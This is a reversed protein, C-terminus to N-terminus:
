SFKVEGNVSNLGFPNGQRSFAYNWGGFSNDDMALSPITGSDPGSPPPNLYNTKTPETSPYKLAIYETAGINPFPVTIPQGTTINVTGLYPVNDMGAKLEASYDTNGQYYYAVIANTVTLIGPQSSVSGAANTVTASFVDGSDTLQANTKTYTL